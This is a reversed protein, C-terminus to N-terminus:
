WFCALARAERVVWVLGLAIALAGGLLGLARRLAPRRGARGLPVGALGSLAAMGIMSGVGFVAVYGIRGALSPFQAAILATLAGSGALGHAIGVLLARRAPPWSARPLGATPHVHDGGDADGAGRARRLSQVGLLILMVGVGLEFGAALAPSMRGRALALVSAVALLALTHGVGWAAGVGLASRPGSRGAFLTSLAVLHDPELAHRLGLLAGLSWLSLAEITM